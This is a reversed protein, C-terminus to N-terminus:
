VMEAEIAATTAALLAAFSSEDIPTNEIRKRQWTDHVLRAVGERATPCDPPWNGLTQAVVTPGQAAWAIQRAHEVIDLRNALLDHVVPHVHIGKEKWHWRNTKQDFFRTAPNWAESM